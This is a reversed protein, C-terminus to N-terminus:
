VGQARRKISRLLRRVAIVHGRTGVVLLRYAAGRPGRFTARSELRCRSGEGAPDIRVVIAYESFRHRGRLVVLRPREAATVAFGPVTAGRASDGDWGSATSPEAGLVGVLLRVPGSGSRRFTELVAQWVQDPDARVQVAHEDVHPLDDLRM